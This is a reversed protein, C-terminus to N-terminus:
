GSELHDQHAVHQRSEGDLVIKYRNEEAKGSELHDQHAVHGVVDDGVVQGGTKKDDDGPDREEDGRVDYRTFATKAGLQQHEREDDVRPISFKFFSIQEKM